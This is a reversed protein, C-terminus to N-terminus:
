RSGSGTRTLFFPPRHLRNLCSVDLSRADATALFTGILAPVCGSASTFHGTGPVVVQRANPLTRVADEGFSPPTVPDESGSLVLVPRTSSVPRYFAPDVNGRPWFECPKLITDLVSAGLFTGESERIFDARTLGAVSESCHVSMFLGSMGEQSRLALSVLGQFSGHAADTLLQPLLSASVPSYLLGLIIGAVVDRSVPGEITTGTLPHQLRVAPRRDALDLVAAVTAGLEPFRDHCASDGACDAILRDLARQASRAWVLFPRASPPPVSDLIVSRVSGEHRALYVLAASAGYSVGWVNIAGYGLAGRVDDLDDMALTTTYFRPDADLHTLCDRFRDVPNDALSTLTVDHEDDRAQCDIPNSRGSGREDVLVIDRDTQFRRFLALNAAADTAPGRGPGGELIFLPTEADGRLAPAVVINLDITRGRAAARDEFVTVRGCM